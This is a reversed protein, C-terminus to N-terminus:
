NSRQEQHQKSFGTFLPDAVKTFFNVVITAGAFLAAYGLAQPVSHQKLGLVVGVAVGGMVGSLPDERGLYRQTACDATAYALGCAAFTAMPNGMIRATLKVNNWKQMKEELTLRQLVCFLLHFRSCRGVHEINKLIGM